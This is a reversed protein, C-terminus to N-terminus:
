PARSTRPSQVLTQTTQRGKRIALLEFFSPKQTTTPDCRDADLLPSFRPAIAQFSWGVIVMDPCSDFKKDVQSKDPADLYFCSAFRPNYNIAVKGPQANSAAFDPQSVLGPRAKNVLRPPAKDRM